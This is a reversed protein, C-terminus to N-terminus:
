AVARVPQALLLSPRVMESQVLGNGCRAERGRAREGAGEVDLYGFLDPAGDPLFAYALVDGDDQAGPHVDLSAREASAPELVEALIRKEGRGHRRPHDLSYLAASDAGAEFCKAHLLWSIARM